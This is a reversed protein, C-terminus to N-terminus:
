EESDIFDGDDSSESFDKKMKELPIAHKKFVNMDSKYQQLQKAKEYAKQVYINYAEKISNSPVITIHKALYEFSQQFSHVEQNYNILLNIMKNFSGQELVTKCYGMFKSKLDSFRKETTWKKDLAKLLKQYKDDPLFGQDACSCTFYKIITKKIDNKNYKCTKLKSKDIDLDYFCSDIMDHLIENVSKLKVEFGHIGALQLFAYCDRKRQNIASHTFRDKLPVNPGPHKLAEIYIDSTSM